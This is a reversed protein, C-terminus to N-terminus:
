CRVNLQRSCLVAAWTTICLIELYDIHSERKLMLKWTGAVSTWDSKPVHVKNVQQVILQQVLKLDNAAPKRGSNGSLTSQNINRNRNNGCCSPAVVVTRWPSTTNMTFHLIIKGGSIVNPRKVLIKRKPRIHVTCRRGCTHQMGQM